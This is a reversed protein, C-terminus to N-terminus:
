ILETQGYHDTGSMALNQKRVEKLIGDLHWKILPYERVMKHLITGKRLLRGIGRGQRTKKGYCMIVIQSTHKDTEKRVQAYAQSLLFMTKNVTADEKGIKGTTCM